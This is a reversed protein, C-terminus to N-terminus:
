RIYRFGLHWAPPPGPNEDDECHEHHKAWSTTRSPAEQVRCCGSAREVPLAFLLLARPAEGRSAAFGFLNAPSLASSLIVGTGFGFKM